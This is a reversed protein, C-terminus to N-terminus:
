EQDATKDDAPSATKTAPDNKGGGKIAGTIVSGKHRAAGIDVPQRGAKVPKVVFDRDLTFFAYYSRIAYM